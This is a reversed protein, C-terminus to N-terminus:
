FRISDCPGAHLVGTAVLAIAQQRVTLGALTGRLGAPISITVFAEDATPFRLGLTQFGPALCVVGTSGPVISVLPIEPGFTPDFSALFVVLSGSGMGTRVFRMGIDDARGPNFGAGDPNSGSLLDSTGPAPGFGPPPPNNSGVFTSQNTIV